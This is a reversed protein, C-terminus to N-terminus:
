GNKTQDMDPSVRLMTDLEAVTQTVHLISNDHLVVTAKIHPHYPFHAGYYSIIYNPNIRREGEKPTLNVIIFKM